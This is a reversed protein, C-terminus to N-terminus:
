KFLLYINTIEKGRIVFESEWELNTPNEATANEM